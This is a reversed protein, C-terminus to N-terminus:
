PAAGELEKEIMPNKELFASAQDPASRQLQRYLDMAKAKEGLKWYTWALWSKVFVSDSNLAYAKKLFEAAKGYKRKVYGALALHTELEGDKDLMLEKKMEGAPKLRDWRWEAKPALLDKEYILATLALAILAQGEVTPHIQDGVLTDDIIGDPSRDEFLKQTPIIFVGKAEAGRLAEYFKNVTSPARIAFRDHDNAMSYYENAKKPDGSGEFCEGIRYYTMAYSADLALCRNYLSLAEGYHKGALAEDADASIRTWEALADKGIARDHISLVPEYGKWKAVGELFVVPISHRRAVDIIRRMNKEFGAKLKNFGGSNMYLIDEDRIAPDKDDDPYWSNLKNSGAERIKDRAIKSRIVLRNFANLFASHKPLEKGFEEIRDIWSKRAFLERRNGFLCFDNHASYIVALDPRYRVTDTFAAATFDSDSGWRGFNTITVRGSVNEPLLDKLYLKLWKDITSYPYLYHGHMTSEGFLFIRFEGKSKNQALDQEIIRREIFSYSGPFIFFRSIFEVLLFFLSVAIIGFLISKARKM